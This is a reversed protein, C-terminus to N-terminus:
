FQYGMGLDFGSENGLGDKRDKFMFDAKIVVDEHPWWNAGAEWIDYERNTGRFYDVNQYRGYIGVDGISTPMRYSPELYFGSQDEAEDFDASNVDIFWQAYLARGTFVGPGISYSYVAHVSFLTGSGVNASTKDSSGTGGSDPNDSQDLDTQYLVTGAVELGPVGTYKVRSAFIPDNATQRGSKGRGDRISFAKRKSTVINLGSTVTADISLGNDFHMSGAIGSEWWTSPIIQSEVDNREVGYFTNPEHTENLIGVPLLFTGAKVSTTENFDYAIYAQELEIEGTKGEGSIAHELELESFFRINENFEHEFFLVFRHFDIQEEHGSGESDRNTYHLEGYGGIRTTDLWSSAQGASDVSDGVTEVALTNNDVQDQINALEIMLAENQAKLKVNESRNKELAVAQQKKYNEFQAVLEDVTLANATTPWNLSIFVSLITLRAFSKM